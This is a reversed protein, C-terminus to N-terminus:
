SEGQSNIDQKNIMEKYLVQNRGQEKVQYLAKDAADFLIDPSVNKEQMYCSVGCSITLKISENELQFLTNMVLTRLEQALAIAGEKDTEPLILCFEEGGYRCGIDASRRLVLQILKALQKLCLDGGIHGYNDNVSKFHDIDIVVLSLPTLNRRSRRFEALIKQSYYRRNNLGTLEDLNNKKELERNVDELEQLAINLELTREQVKAELQEKAQQQVILLEQQAERSEMASELAEHQAQHKATIQLNSQKSLLLAILCGNLWFNITYIDADIAFWGNFGINCLVWVLQNIMIALLLYALSSKAKILQIAITLLVMSILLQSINVIVINFEFDIFASFVTVAFMLSMFAYCIYNLVPNHWYLRFLSRCFGLTLIVILANLIPIELGQLASLWPAFASINIGNLAALYIIELTFLLFLIFFRVKALSIFVCLMIIAITGLSALALGFKLYSINQSQSFQKFDLLKITSEVEGYVDISLYLNLSQNPELTVESNLINNFWQNLTKKKFCEQNPQYIVAQKLYYKSHFTLYRTVPYNSHNKINIKLWNNGINLIPASSSILQWRDTSLQIVQEIPIVVTNTQELTSVVHSVEPLESNIAESNAFLSFNVILMMIFLFSPRIIM